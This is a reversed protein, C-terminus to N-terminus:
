RLDALLGFHERFKRADYQDRPQWSFTRCGDNVQEEIIPPPSSFLCLTPRDHWACTCTYPERRERLYEDATLTRVIM